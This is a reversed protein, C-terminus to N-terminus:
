WQLNMHLLSHFKVKFWFAPCGVLKTERPVSLTHTTYKTHTSLKTDSDQYLSIQQWNTGVSLLDTQVPKCSNGYVKWGMETEAM